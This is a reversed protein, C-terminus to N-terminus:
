WFLLYGEKVMCVKCNCDFHWDWITRGMESNM